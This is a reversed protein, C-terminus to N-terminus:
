TREQAGSTGCEEQGDHMFFVCKHKAVMNTPECSSSNAQLALSQPEIGPDSDDGPSPFPWELMRVQLIGHVCSGPPSDLGYPQFSDSVFSPSLMSVCLLLRGCVSETKM